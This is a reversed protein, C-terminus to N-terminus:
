EPNRELHGRLAEMTVADIYQQRSLALEQELASISGNLSHVRAIRQQLELPPLEIEFARLDTLAIFQIKTGRRLGGLRAATLPHNLYWALFDAEVLGPAPSVIAWHGVAIVGAPVERAVFATPRISRLPLLVDGDSVDYRDDDSAAAVFGLADWDISGDAAVDAAQLAKLYNAEPRVATAKSAVYGGRVAGMADLPVRRTGPRTQRARDVNNIV